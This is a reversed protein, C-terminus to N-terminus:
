AADEEHPDILKPQQAAAAALTELIDVPPQRFMDAVYSTKALSQRGLTIRLGYAALAWVVVVAVGILVGLWLRNHTPVGFSSVLGLGVVSSSYEVGKSSSIATM